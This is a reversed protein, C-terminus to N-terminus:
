VVQLSHYGPLTVTFTSGKGPRSDVSIQGDHMTQIIERVLHLGLGTGGALNNNQPVRYFKDFIHELSDEPIGVGQDQVEIVVQGVDNRDASISVERGALSYKVANSLLNLLAQHIMDRDAYIVLDDSEFSIALEINKGQMQPRMIAAVDDIIEAVSLPEFSPKLLGSELRSSDLIADILHNLRNSQDQIVRCFQKHAAVNDAENDALLEAYASIGALPTKLEHSISNVFDDKMRVIEKESTIDHIVVVGGIVQGDADLVCSFLVKLDLKKGSVPHVREFQCIINKSRERHGRRILGLLDDDNIVQDIPSRYNRDLCFDYLEQAAENAMLLEDYKDTVIVADSISFIVAEVQRTETESVSAQLQLEKHELDDREFRFRVNTLYHNIETVLDALENDVDVMIMGIRDAQEFQRLQDRIRGIALVYRRRILEISVAAVITVLAYILWFFWRVMSSSQALPFQAILFAINGALIILVLLTLVIRRTLFLKM